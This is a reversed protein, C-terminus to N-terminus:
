GDMPFATFIYSIKIFLEKKKKKLMSFEDLFKSCSIELNKIEPHNKKINFECFALFLINRQSHIIYKFYFLLFFFGWFFQYKRTRQQDRVIM